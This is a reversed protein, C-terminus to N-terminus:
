APQRPYLESLKSLAAHVAKVGKRFRADKEGFDQEGWALHRLPMYARWLGDIHHRIVGDTELQQELRPPVHKRTSLWQATAGEDDLPAGEAQWRRITRPTTKYREALTEARKNTM